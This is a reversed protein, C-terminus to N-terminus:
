PTPTPTPTSTPTPVLKVREPHLAIERCPPVKLTVPKGVLKRFREREEPTMVRQIASVFMATANENSGGGAGSEIIANALLTCGVRIAQQNREILQRDSTQRHGLSWGGLAVTIVFSVFGITRWRRAIRNAQTPSM